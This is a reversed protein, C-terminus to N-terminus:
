AGALRRALYAVAEAATAAAFIADARRADLARGALERAWGGSPALAAIPKAFQWAFAAESLTGSGGGCLVVGDGALVVLTNRAYGLGTPVAVDLHENAEDARAGPLIGIVLGGGSAARARAYGRSVAEMVGDLGGCALDFDARCIEGGLDEALLALAGDISGSAGCVAIVRRRRRAPREPDRMTM